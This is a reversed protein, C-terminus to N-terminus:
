SKDEQKLDSLFQRSLVEAGSFNVHSFDSMLEPKNLFLSSYDMVSRHSDNFM